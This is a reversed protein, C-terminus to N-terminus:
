STIKILVEMILSMIIMVIVSVMSTNVRLILGISVLPAASSNSMLCQMRHLTVTVMMVLMAM